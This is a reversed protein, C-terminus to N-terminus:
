WARRFTEGMSVDQTWNGYLDVEDKMKRSSYVLYQLVSDGRGINWAKKGYYVPNNNNLLSSAVDSLTEWVTMKKKIFNMPIREIM